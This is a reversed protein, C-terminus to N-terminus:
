IFTSVTGPKQNSQERRDAKQGLILNKEILTVKYRGKHWTLFHILAHKRQFSNVNEPFSCVWKSFARVSGPNESSYDPTETKTGVHCTLMRIFVTAGERRLQTSIKFMSIMILWFSLVLGRITITKM